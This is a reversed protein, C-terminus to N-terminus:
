FGKLTKCAVAYGLECAKKLDQQAQLLNGKAGLVLGRNNYALADTPDLMIARDFDEIAHDYDGKKIYANGRNSYAFSHAPEVKITRTYDKIALDYDGTYFLTNARNYYADVYRSDLAIAMTFDEIARAYDGKVSMTVGRNNYAQTYKPDLGIADTFDEVARGYDKRAKYALGRNNYALADRPNLKIAATHDEIARDHDGKCSYAFGRNDYAEFYHPNLRIAQNFDEIAHDHNGHVNNVIGREYYAIAVPYQAIVDNWLSFGDKWVRCRELTLSALIVIGMSVGATLLIKLGRNNIFKEKVFGVLTAFVFYIGILPIYTYREAVITGGLPVIQLIPLATILFFLSGFVLAPFSTRFRWITAAIGIVLFLSALLRLNMGGDLPTQLPYLACLHLPAISKYLYFVLGYFPVCIRQLASLSAYESIPKAVNQTLLAIVTFVAAIIFFPMKNVISRKVIKKHRLYDILLLVFPQSVAMPKSLLSCLLSVACFWYYKRSGNKSFRVYFLLSLLYFFSSLVDKREAIWAVSEVRLPHVAFLLAVLLSILYSMSLSYILAFVLLGNLIHLLLNTCHYAAPNSKILSFEAMYTLMTLPQYNGIYSSSFINAVNHLTFGKIDPNKVVYSDDDWYVFDNTLSPLFAIFTIGTIICCCILARRFEKRVPLLQNNSV